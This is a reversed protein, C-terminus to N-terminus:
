KNTQLECAQSSPYLGPAIKQFHQCPRVIRLYTQIPKAKQNNGELNSNQRGALPGLDPFGGWLAGSVARLLARVFRPARLLAGSLARSPNERHHVVLLAGEPASRLAGRNRLASELATEPASKPTERIQARQSVSLIEVRSTRQSMCFCDHRGECITEMGDKSAHQQLREFHMAWALELTAYKHGTTADLYVVQHSCSWRKLQLLKTAWGISGGLASCPIAIGIAGVLM